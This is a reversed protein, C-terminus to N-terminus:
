AGAGRGDVVGAAMGKHAAYASLALVAAKFRDIDVPKSVHM